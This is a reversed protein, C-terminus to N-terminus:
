IKIFYIDNLFLLLNKDKKSQLHDAGYHDDINMM